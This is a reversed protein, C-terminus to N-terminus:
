GVKLFLYYGHSRFSHRSLLHSPHIEAIRLPNERYTAKSPAVSYRFFIICRTTHIGRLKKEEKDNGEGHCVFYLVCVLFFAKMM